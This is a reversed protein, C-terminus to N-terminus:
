RTRCTYRDLHFEDGSCRVQLPVERTSSALASADVVISLSCDGGYEFGEYSMWNATRSRYARDRTGTYTFEGVVRISADDVQMELSPTLAVGSATTTCTWKRANAPPTAPPPPTPAPPRPLRLTAPKPSACTLIDQQFGDGACQLRLQGSPKGELLTSDAVAKLVCDDGTEYGTFRARSTNKPAKYTTDRAGLNPGYDDEFRLHKDTVLVKTSAKEILTRSSPTQCEYEFGRETSRLEDDENAVSADSGGCAVTAMGVAVLCGVVGSFSKM